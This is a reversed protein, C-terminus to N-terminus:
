QNREDESEIVKEIAKGVLYGGIAGTVVLVYGVTANVQMVPVGFGSGAAALAIPLDSKQKRKARKREELIATSM